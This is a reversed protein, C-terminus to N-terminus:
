GARAGMPGFLAVILLSERKDGSAAHVTFGGSTKEVAEVRTGTRVDIGLERSKAMLLGVLDPDFATLMHNAFELVTVKAGVRAAIHSFEAAIYGGGVLAIRKPLADLELFDTSRTLHEEGRIGLRMPVAGAAILVFRSELAEGGVEVSRRDRFRARGHYADIGNEAFSKAMMPPVPGTFGRKFKILESWAIEPENGAIGKGRMRRAHDIAEVAGVLVKKPDCGRLACTGGFPLHDVVAVQWGASRCRAAAVQAATGTGIVILDYTKAM